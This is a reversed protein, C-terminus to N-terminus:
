VFQFHLVKYSQPVEASGPLGNIHLTLYNFSHTWSWLNFEGLSQSNNILLQAFHIHLVSVLLLHFWFFLLNANGFLNSQWSICWTIQVKICETYLTIILCTASLVFNLSCEYFNFTIIFLLLMISRQKM